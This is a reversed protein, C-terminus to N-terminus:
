MYTICDSPWCQTLGSWAGLSYSFCISFLRTFFRMHFPCSFSLRYSKNETGWEPVCNSTYGIISWNQCNMDIRINIVQSQACLTLCVHHAHSVNSFWVTQFTSVVIPPFPRLLLPVPTNLFISVPEVRREGGGGVAKRVRTKEKSAQKNQQNAIVLLRACALSTSEILM